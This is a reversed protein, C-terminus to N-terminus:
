RSSRIETGVAPTPVPPHAEVPYAKWQKGCYKPNARQFARQDCPKGTHPEGMEAHRAAVARNHFARARGAQAEPMGSSALGLIAAVIIAALRAWMTRRFLATSPPRHQRPLLTKGTRGALDQADITHSM